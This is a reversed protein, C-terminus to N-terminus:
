EITIMFLAFQATISNFYIGVTVHKNEKTFIICEVRLWNLFAVLSLLDNSKKRWKVRKHQPGIEINHSFM